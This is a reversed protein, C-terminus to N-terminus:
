EDTPETQADSARKWTAYEIDEPSLLPTSAPSAPTAPQSRRRANRNQNKRWTLRIRESEVALAQPTGIPDNLLQHLTVSRLSLIGPSPDIEAITDIRSILGRLATLADEGARVVARLREQSISM